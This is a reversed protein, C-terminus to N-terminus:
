VILDDTEDRASKVRKGSSSLAHVPIMPEEVPVVPVVPEVPLVPFPWLVV